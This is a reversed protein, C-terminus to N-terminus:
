VREAVRLKASRSRANNNIAEESPLIFHPKIRKLKQKKGCVCVPFEPPCTCPNEADRMFNKVIRDELSHYTIIALRGKKALYKISEDLTQKLIELENNVEIRLAQFIRAYSKTAFRPNVCRDILALLDGTKEIRKEERAKVIRYAIKGSFREEGYDKFITKLKDKGYNNLIWEGRLEQEINMRMDLAVGPRFSFGREDNDIQWSSVGLDLLIGDIKEIGTQKVVEDIQEFTTQFASFNSYGKLRKRAVKIADIDRDIGFYSADNSLKNLILEAHGGGGLTGDLYIGDTKKILYDVVEQGMVPVHYVPEM